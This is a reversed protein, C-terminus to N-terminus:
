FRWIVTATWRNSQAANYFLANAGASTNVYSVTLSVPSLEYTLRGGWYGFSGPQPGGFHSYGASAAASLRRALPRQVSLEASESPTGVLGRSRVYRPYNPAYILSVNLWDRYTADADIDDYDYSSGADNWPYAYHSLLIKGDWDGNSTWVYGLFADLEVDKSADPDLQTNSAFLGAVVGSGSMYHVDLQLAPHDNSRSIGRVIYDSTVGLSGGWQDAAACRPMNAILGLSLIVGTASVRVVDGSPVTVFM